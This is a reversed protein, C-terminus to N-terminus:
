YLNIITLLPQNTSQFMVPNHSEWWIPFPIIMGVSQSEYKKSPYTYWWGSLNFPNDLWGTSDESGVRRKKERGHRIYPMPDIGECRLCRPEQHRFVLNPTAMNKGSFILNQSRFIGAVNWHIKQDDWFYSGTLIPIAWKWVFMCSSNTQFCKFLFVSHLCNIALLGPALETSPM